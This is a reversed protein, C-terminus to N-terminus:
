GHDDKVEGWKPAAKIADQLKDLADSLVAEQNGSSGIARRTKLVDHAAMCLAHYQLDFSALHLLAQEYPTFPVRSVEVMKVDGHCLSCYAVARDYEFTGAESVKDTYGEGEPRWYAGDRARILHYLSM